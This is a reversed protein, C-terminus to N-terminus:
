QGTNTLLKSIADLGIFTTLSFEGEPLQSADLKGIAQGVVVEWPKKSSCISCILQRIDKIKTNRLRDAASILARIKLCDRHQSNHELWEAALAQFDDWTTGLQTLVQDTLLLNEIAYCQLRFRTVSGVPVLGDVVGDGDRLSFAIPNDYLSDIIDATFSELETQQDVSNAIVPFLRIKGQSTRAAQQWVREDDEGELILMPDQSLSLSLPHGFFPAIKKLQASIGVFNVNTVGFDKTGISTQESKALACIFPTSHTALIVAVNDKDESPLNDVLNILFNALRGQLDPHLHVDPEDLLLLNFRERKLNDFFYMLEVALSVSESEGSSIQNPQIVEGEINRFEFNSGEQFISINSLLRNINDLRETRFNRNPDNRIEPNDQLQRLYATEVERLLTASVAKFNEAQNVRRSNGLWSPDSELNNLVYGDRKFVGAREPSIYRINYESNYQLHEDILRLFRSKGAGNKGLLININKLGEAKLQAGIELCEKRM